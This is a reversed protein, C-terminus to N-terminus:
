TNFGNLAVLLLELISMYMSPSPVRMSIAYFDKQANAIGTRNRSFVELPDLHTCIPKICM